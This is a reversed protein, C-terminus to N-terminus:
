EIDDDAHRAFSGRDLLKGREAQEIGTLVSKLAARNKYLWAERLPITTEPVLLIQGDKNCMVAFHLREVRGFRQRLAEVAKTLAVRNRSDLSAEGVPEFEASQPIKKPM